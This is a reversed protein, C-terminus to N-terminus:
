RSRGRWCCYDVVIIFVYPEACIGRHSVTAPPPHFLGQKVRTFGHCWVFTHFLRTPLGGKQALWDGLAQCAQARTHFMPIFGHSVLHSINVCRIRLDVRGSVTGNWAVEAPTHFWITECGMEHPTFGSPTFYSAQQKVRPKVIRLNKRVGM